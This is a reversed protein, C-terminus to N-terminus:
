KIIGFQDVIYPTEADKNQDVEYTVATLKNGDVTISMFNQIVSRVPRSADDPDPGYQATHHEDALEFLDFYEAPM